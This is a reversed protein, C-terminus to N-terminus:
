NYKRLYMGGEPERPTVADKADLIKDLYRRLKARDEDGLEEPSYVKVLTRLFVGMAENLYRHQISQEALDSSVDRLIYATTAGDKVFVQPMSVTKAYERTKTITKKM